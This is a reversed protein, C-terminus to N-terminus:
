CSNGTLFEGVVKAALFGPGGLIMGGPYMTRTRPRPMKESTGPPDEITAIFRLRGGCGACSLVDISFVRRM